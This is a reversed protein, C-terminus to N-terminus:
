FLLVSLLYILSNFTGEKATSAHVILMRMPKREKALIRGFSEEDMLCSRLNKEEKLVHLLPGKELKQWLNGM